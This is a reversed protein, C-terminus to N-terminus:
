VKKVEKKVPLKVPEPNLPKGTFPSNAVSEKKSHVGEKPVLDYTVDKPQLNLRKIQEPANQLKAGTELDRFLAPKTSSSESKKTSPAPKEVQEGFSTSGQSGLFNSPEPFSINYVNQTPPVTPSEQGFSGGGELYGSSGTGLTPPPLDDTKRTLFFLGGAVGALGLFGLWKM